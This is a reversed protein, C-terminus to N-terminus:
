KSIIYKPAMNEDEAVTPQGRLKLLNKEVEVMETEMVEEKVLEVYVHVWEMSQVLALAHLDGQEDEMEEVEEEVEEL